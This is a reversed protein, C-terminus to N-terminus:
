VQDPLPIDYRVLQLLRMNYQDFDRKDEFLLSDWLDAHANGALLRIGENVPVSPAFRLAERAIRYFGRKGESLSDVTVLSYAHPNEDLRLRISPNRCFVDLVHERWSKTELKPAQAFDRLHRRERPKEAAANAEDSPTVVQRVLLQGCSIMLIDQWAVAMLQTENWQYAECHLGAADLTVNKMRMMPPFDHLEQDSILMVPVGAQRIADALPRAIAIDLAQALIGHSVRIERAVDPLPKKVAESIMRGIRQVNLAGAGTYLIACNGTLEADRRVPRPENAGGVPV